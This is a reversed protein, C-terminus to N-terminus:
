FLNRAEEYASRMLGAYTAVNGSGNYLRAFGAWDRARLCGIAEGPGGCHECFSFFGRVQAGESAQFAECLDRATRFGLRAFNFGMIQPGGISICRSAIEAGALGTALELVDYEQDQDRHCAVFPESSNKRYAHCKWAAFEGGSGLCGAGTQPPRGGHRFHLDYLAPNATGWVDFLVHNEFRIITRGPTHERGSSEVYWVALVAPVEVRSEGALREMLGGVRNFVRALAQRNAPWAPSIGIPAGPTDGLPPPRKMLTRAPFYAAATPM